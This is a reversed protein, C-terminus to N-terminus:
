KRMNELTLPYDAPPDELPDAADQARAHEITDLRHDHRQALALVGALAAISLLISLGALTHTLRM